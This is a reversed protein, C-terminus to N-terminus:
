FKVLKLIRREIQWKRDFLEIPEQPLETRVARERELPVTEFDRNTATELDGISRSNFHEVTRRIQALLELRAGFSLTGILIGNRTIASLFCQGSM